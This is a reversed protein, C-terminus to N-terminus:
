VLPALAVPITGVALFPALPLTTLAPSRRRGLSVLIGALSAFALGALLAFWAAVGLYIGIVVVLKVDGMGMGEPRFRAALWLPLAVAAGLGAATLLAGAGGAVAALLLGAAAAPLTLRDPIVRSRLDTFSAAAMTSTLLLAAPLATLLSSDTAEIM